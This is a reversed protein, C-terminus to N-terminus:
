KSNVRSRSSTVSKDRLRLSITSQPRSLLLDEQRPPLSPELTKQPHPYSTESVRGEQQAQVRLLWFDPSACKTWNWISPRRRTARFNSQCSSLKESVVLNKIPFPLQTTCDSAKWTKWSTQIFRASGRGKARWFHKKTVQSLRRCRSKFILDLVKRQNQPNTVVLQWRALSSPFKIRQQSICIPHGSEFM